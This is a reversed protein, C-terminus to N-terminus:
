SNFAMLDIRGWENTDYTHWGITPELEGNGFNYFEEEGIISSYDIDLIEADSVFFENHERMVSPLEDRPIDSEATWPGNDNRLKDADLKFQHGLEHMFATAQQYIFGNWSRQRDSRWWKQIKGDAIFARFSGISTCGFGGSKTNGGLLYDDGFLFYHFIGKRDNLFYISNSYMSEVSNTVAIDCGGEYWYNPCFDDKEDNYVGDM